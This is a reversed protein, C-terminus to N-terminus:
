KGHGNNSLMVPIKSPRVHVFVNAVRILSFGNIYMIQKSFSVLAGNNSISM